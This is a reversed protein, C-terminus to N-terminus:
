RKSSKGNNKEADLIKRNFDLLIQQIAPSDETLPLLADIIERQGEVRGKERRQQLWSEVFM